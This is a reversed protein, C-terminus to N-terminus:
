RRWGRGIRAFGDVYAQARGPPLPLPAADPGLQLSLEGAEANADRDPLRLARAVGDFERVGRRLRARAGDDGHAAVAGDVFDHVSQELRTRPGVPRGVPRDERHDRDAGPVVEDLRDGPARVPPPRVLDEFPALDPGHVEASDLPVSARLVEDVAGPRPDIDLDHTLDPVETPEPPDDAVQGSEEAGEDAEPRDRQPDPHVPV